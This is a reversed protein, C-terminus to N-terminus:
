QQFQDATKIVPMYSVITSIAELNMWITWFPLIKFKKIAFYYEM